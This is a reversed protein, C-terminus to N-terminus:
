KPQPAPVKALVWDSVEKDLKPGELDRLLMHYGDDYRRVEARSGLEAIVGESADHPIIQDKKGTMLLIPPINLPL